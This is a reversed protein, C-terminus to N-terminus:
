GHSSHSSVNVSHLAALLIVRGAFCVKRVTAALYKYESQAHSRHQMECIIYVVM